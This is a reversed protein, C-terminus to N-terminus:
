HAHGFDDPKAEKEAVGPDYAQRPVILTLATGLGPESRIEMRAAANFKLDLRDKINFLGIRSSRKGKSVLQDNLELLKAPDIGKGNDQVTIFVFGAEGTVTIKILWQGEQNELGHFIANEVIPQLIFKNIKNDLLAPDAELEYHLKGDYRINQIRLYDQVCALEAELPVIETQRYLSYQLVNRLSQTILEIDENRELIALSSISQLTNYLFHPNIQAQLAAYEAEKQLLRQKIADTVLENIKDLMTNFGKNLVNFEEYNEQRDIRKELKGKGVEKMFNVLTLIPKTTRITVTWAFFITIIIMVLLLFTTTNRILSLKHDLEAFSVIFLTKWGTVSSTTYSILVKQGNISDTWYGSPQDALGALKAKDLQLDPASQFITQQEHDILMADLNLQRQITEFIAKLKNVNYDFVAVGYLTNDSPDYADRINAAITIVNSDRSPSYNNYYNPLHAGYFKTRLAYPTSLFDNWVDRLFPSDFDISSGSNIYQIRHESNYIFYGRIDTKEAFINNLLNSIRSRAQNQDYYFTNSTSDKLTAIIDQDISIFNLSNKIENLYLDLSTNVQDTVTSISKIMEKKTFSSFTWYSVTGLIVLSACILLSYYLIIRNKFTNLGM